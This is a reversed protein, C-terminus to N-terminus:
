SALKETPVPLFAFKVDLYDMLWENFDTKLIVSFMANELTINSVSKLEDTVLAIEGVCSNPEQVRFIAEHGNEPGVRSVHVKGSFILLIASTKCDPAAERKVYRVTKAKKMLDALGKEPINSLFPINDGKFDYIDPNQSSYLYSRDDIASQNGLLSINKM